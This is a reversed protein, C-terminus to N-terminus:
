VEKRYVWWLSPDPYDWVQQAQYRRPRFGLLAEGPDIVGLPTHATATWRQPPNSLQYTQRDDTWLNKRVNKQPREEASAKRPCKRFTPTKPLLRGKPKKYSQMAVASLELSIDMPTRKHERKKESNQVRRRETHTSVGPLDKTDKKEHNQM